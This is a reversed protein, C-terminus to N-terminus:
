LLRFSVEIRVPMEVPAGGRSAPRFKWQQVAQIAREDLGLGLGSQIRFNRARGDAGIDVVLVVLGQLRAKRAEDTYEPEIKWVLM